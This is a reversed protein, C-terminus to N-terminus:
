FPLFYLIPLLNSESEIVLEDIIIRDLQIYGASADADHVRIYVTGSTGSPLTYYQATNDDSTKSVTLMEIYTVDDTSYSFIFDDGESNASHHAEVYFTVIGESTVNFVWIHELISTTGNNIETLTQYSDDSVSLNAVSGSVTGDVAIERAATDTVLGPQVMLENSNGSENGFENTWDLDVSGIGSSAIELALSAPETAAAFVIYGVQETTHGRESDGLTDEDVILNIASDSVPSTGFLHAHGGDNGDMAALTVIGVRADTLSLSYNFPPSNALGQITDSGLAATYEFGDMTGSGSEVVIYGITEDSRSTVPDEGVHKGTSLATSSPPDVRSGNSCWFVSWDADNITMVQGMVVPSTYSNVYTRAEGNWNDRGDTVISNYKVAEMKVGDQEVTYSGEEVVMYHVTQGSLASGAPNQVMLEFSSGSANRIRTVAVPDSASDLVVGAVVVMSNYSNPLTITQWSSGVGTIIDNVLKIASGVPPNENDVVFSAAAVKRANGTTWSYVNTGAAVDEEYGAAGQASGIDGSEYIATLPSDVVPSGSGNANFCVMTFAGYETTTLTVANTNAASSAATHLQISQGGANISAVGIGVGNVTSIGTYDIVLDASGGTYSNTTLDLYWIDAHGGLVAEDLPYGDYTVSYTGASKESSLAVVLM